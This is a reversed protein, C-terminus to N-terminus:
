VTGTNFNFRQRLQKEMHDALYEHGKLLPHGGPGYKVDGHQLLVTELSINLLHQRLNARSILQSLYPEFEQERCIKELTWYNEKFVSTGLYSVANLKLFADLLIIQQAWRYVDTRDNSYTGWIERVCEPIDSDAPSVFSRYLGNKPLEFRHLQSWAIIALPKKGQIMLRGIDEVTTRLIRDNSSGPASGDVLGLGLRNAVQRPWYHSTRYRDHEPLFHNRPDGAPDILESGYVWSDGNVYLCDFM